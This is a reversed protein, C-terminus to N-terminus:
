SNCFFSCGSVTTIHSFFEQFRRLVRVFLLLLLFIFNIEKIPICLLLEFFYNVEMSIHQKRHGPTEPFLPVLANIESSCLSCLDLTLPVFNM